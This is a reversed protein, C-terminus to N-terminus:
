GRETIGNERGPTAGSAAAWNIDLHYTEGNTSFYTTCQRPNAYSPGLNARTTDPQLSRNQRYRTQFTQPASGPGDACLRANGRNTFDIGDQSGSTGIYFVISGDGNVVADAFASAPAALGLAGTLVAVTLPRKM